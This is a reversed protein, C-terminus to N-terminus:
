YPFFQLFREYQLLDNDGALAFVTQIPHFPVPALLCMIVIFAMSLPCNLGQTHSKDNEPFVFISM